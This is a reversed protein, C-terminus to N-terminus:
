HEPEEAPECSYAEGSAPTSRAANDLGVYQYCPTVVPVELTVQEGGEFGVAVSIFDGAGFEGNVRAGDTDALNVAGGAPIEVPEFADVTLEAEDGPELSVLTDAEDNDNNALTATFTGSGPSSAVIVAGLVDIDASRDNVGAGITNVRDTAYDFGCSSLTPAALLLAGAALVHTRRLPM